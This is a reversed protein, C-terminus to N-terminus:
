NMWGLGGTIKTMSTRGTERDYQQKTSDAAFDSSPKESKRHRRLTSNGGIYDILLQKIKRVNTRVDVSLLPLHYM